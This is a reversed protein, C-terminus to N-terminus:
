RRKWKTGQPTDELIVGRAALDNRIQDAKGFDRNRRALNRDDILQEVEPDLMMSQDDGGMVGLVSDIRTLLEIVANRDDVGFEGADLATNVDRRFEFLAALAKSTNLDDDMGAEFGERARAIADQM